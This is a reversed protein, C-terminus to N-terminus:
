DHEVSEPQHDKTGYYAAKKIHHTIAHSAFMSLSHMGAKNCTVFMGQRPLNRQVSHPCCSAWPFHEIIGESSTLQSVWLNVWQQDAVGLAFETSFFKGDSVKVTIKLCQILVQSSQSERLMNVAQSVSSFVVQFVSMGGMGALLEVM